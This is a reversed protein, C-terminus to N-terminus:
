QFISFSQVGDWSGSSMWGQSLLGNSVLGRPPLSHGLQGGKGGGLLALFELQRKFQVEAFSKFTTRSALVTKPRCLTSQLFGFNRGNPFGM